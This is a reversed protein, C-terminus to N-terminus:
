RPGAKMGVTALVPLELTRSASGATPFGTRLFIRLLGVCLATFGALLLGLAAVPKKLSKGQVPPVAREVISINDAGQSAMADAAQTEQEKVTFDRVNNSLVDRDRSLGQFQPELQDFRLQRETVQAIQDGLTQSSRQLAAVEATLQIKDTQLTQYVPNVGLRRSGDGQVHGEAIAREMAAIQVDLGKVPASDARYRGLLGARQVKLDTLKDQAAHDVDHFLGIEPAVQASQAELAGLRAQREQLQADTQYKQQQLSSQLQALATKESAFDGINNSGLFNQYAEDAQELRAEFARRQTELPAAPDLLITRRYVLYQDLLTNLVLAATQPDTDDYELRVVPTGPAAGIKLSKEMAAVAQATMKQQEALSAREYRGALAPFIRTLGLKQIVQEKVQASSMIEVESQVVQDSDPVAGRAADGARPVYVYEQGLRILLSSRAPYVTKLMLAVALGLAAIVMFVSLMVFRERWLLPIFDVAAFKPRTSGDARRWPPASAEREDIWASAPM